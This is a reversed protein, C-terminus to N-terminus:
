ARQMQGNGPAGGGPKGAGSAAAQADHAALGAGGRVVVANAVPVGEVVPTFVVGNADKKMEHHIQAGMCGAVTCTFVDAIWDLIYAAERLEEMCIAACHCVCSLLQLCNACHIIQYDMPDPRIKKTDM